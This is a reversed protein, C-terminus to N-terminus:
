LTKDQEKEAKRVIHHLFLANLDTMTDKHVHCSGRVCFVLLFRM